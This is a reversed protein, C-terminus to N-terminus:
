VTQDAIGQGSFNVEAFPSTYGFLNFQFEGILVSSKVGNEYTKIGAIIGESKKELSFYLFFIQFPIILLLLSIIFFSKKNIM